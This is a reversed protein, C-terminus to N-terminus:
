LHLVCVCLLVLLVSLFFSFLLEVVGYVRCEQGREERLVVLLTWRPNLVASLSAQFLVTPRQRTSFRGSLRSEAGCQIIELSDNNLMLLLRGNQIHKEAIANLWLFNCASVSTSEVWSGAFSVTASPSHSGVYSPIQSRILFSDVPITKFFTDRVTLSSTPNGPTSAPSPCSTCTPFGHKIPM